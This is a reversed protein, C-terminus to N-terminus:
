DGQPDAVVRMTVRSDGEGEVTSSVGVAGLTELAERAEADTVQPLYFEEFPAVDVYLVAQADEANEVASTFLESSGLTDDSGEAVEDVYAQDTGLTLTGDDDRRVLMTPGLGNQDLLETARDTDTTVRYAVPLPPLDPDTQSMASVAGVIDPGVSLVMSEGLAVKLDDPLVFGASEAQAVASEMEEGYLESYYDWAAQVTESGNRVSYAVATDAPLETVLPEGANEVQPVGEVGRGVGHVEIADETLRVTGAFRGALELETMEPAGEVGMEASMEAYQGLEDLQSLDGWASIIGSEGLDDMDSTYTDSDALSGGEVASKVADVSETQTVVVYDGDVYYGAEDQEALHEDLFATAAEGDEVQLAVAVVPEEGEGAPMIAVGMRDGLWPEIDEEFSIGEPAEGSKELQEWAWQRWEGESLRQQVDEDLGQFFRVAAVKEGVSPDLDMELYLAADAPLVSEPQDGGGSLMMAAAVGGGIVTVAGVGAGILLWPTRRGGESVDGGPTETVTTM